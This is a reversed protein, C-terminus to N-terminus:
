TEPDKDPLQWFYRIRHGSYCEPHLIAAIDTLIEDLRDGSQLYVPLLSYVRGGPKLPNINAIVPNAKALAEKSTAGSKRSRYTFFIDADQGSYLFRELSIEVCSRGFIDEFQYDSLALEVLEGVWANGPEVLVRKSYIDGWMVKPKQGADKTAARIDDLADSM